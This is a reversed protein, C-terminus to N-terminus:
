YFFNYILEFVVYEYHTVTDGPFDDFTAMHGKRRASRQNIKLKKKTQFSRQFNFCITRACDSRMTNENNSNENNNNTYIIKKKKNELIGRSSSEIICLATPPM